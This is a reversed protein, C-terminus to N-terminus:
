KPVIDLRAAQVRKQRNNDRTALVRQLRRVAPEDALAAVFSQGQLVGASEGDVPEDQEIIGQHM